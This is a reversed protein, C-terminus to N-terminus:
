NIIGLSSLTNNTDLISCGENTVDGTIIKKELPVSVFIIDKPPEAAPMVPYRQDLLVGQSVALATKSLHQVSFVPFPPFPGEMMLQRLQYRNYVNGDNQVRM